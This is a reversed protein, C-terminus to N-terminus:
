PLWRATTEPESFTKRTLDSRCLSLHFCLQFVCCSFSVLTAAQSLENLKSVWADCADRSETHFVFQTGTSFRVVFATGERPGTNKSSLFAFRKKQALVEEHTATAGSLDFGRAVMHKKLPSFYVLQKSSLQCTRKLWKGSIQELRYLDGQLVPKIKSLSRPSLVSFPESSTQSHKSPSLAHTTPKVPSARQGKVPSKTPSSNTPSKVPSKTLQTSSRTVSPPSFKSPSPPNSESKSKDAKGWFLSYRRPQHKPKMEFGKLAKDDKIKEGYSFSFRRSDRSSSIEQKTAQRDGQSFSYRRRGSNDMDKTESTKQDKM